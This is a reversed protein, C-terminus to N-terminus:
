TVAIWLVEVSLCWDGMCLWIVCTKFRLAAHRVCLLLYFYTSVLAEGDYSGRIISYRASGRVDLRGGRLLRLGHADCQVEYLEASTSGGGNCSGSVISDQM